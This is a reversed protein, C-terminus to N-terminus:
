QEKDSKGNHICLLAGEFLAVFNYSWIARPCYFSAKLIEYLRVQFTALSFEHMVNFSM